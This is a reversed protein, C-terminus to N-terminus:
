EQVDPGPSLDDMDVGLIESKALLVVKSKKNAILRKFGQM